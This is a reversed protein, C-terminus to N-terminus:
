PCKATNVSEYGLDIYGHPGQHGYTYVPILGDDIRQSLLLTLTNSAEDDEADPQGAAECSQGHPGGVGELLDEVQVVASQLREAADAPGADLVLPLLLLLGALEQEGHELDVEHAEEQQLVQRGEGDDGEGVELHAHLEPPGDCGALGVLQPVVLDQPVLLLDQVHHQHHHHDERQAPGRPLRIGEGGNDVGGDILPSVDVDHEEYEM